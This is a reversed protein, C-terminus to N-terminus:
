CNVTDALVKFAKTTVKNVNKEIFKRVDSLKLFKGCLAQQQIIGTNFLFRRFVNIWIVRNSSIM